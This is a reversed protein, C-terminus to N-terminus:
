ASLRLKEDPPIWKNRRIKDSIKRIVLRDEVELGFGTLFAGYAGLYIVAQPVARWAGQDPLWDSVSWAIGFALAGAVCPKLLAFRFPHIKQILYVEIVRVVSLTGFAVLTGLAAGLMGYQPILVLNLGFNLAVVIGTNVLNLYPHGSMILLTDGSGMSAYLFQSLSLVILCTVGATFESGFLSLLERGFLVMCFLFPLNVTLVWRTVLAFNHGLRSIHNRHNLESIIPAFIPDFWQRVKKTTLAIEIAVAYIGVQMATLFYGVMLADLRMMLIYLFEYGMVPLSFRTLESWLRFQKMGNLCKRWSFFHRFAFVALVSGGIAAVLHAIAIGNFQWGVMFCVAAGGFLFLPEAVSKIYADFKMIKLSKVAGLVIQTFSLFPVTLALVYMMSELEPKDFVRVAIVPALLSLFGAIIASLTLGIAIAHGLTRYVAENHGDSRYEVVFKLVGKDLAFNGVKSVLDIVSWALIYLGFVEAGFLRTLLIFTASKIVKAMTGLFNVLAGKAIVSADHGQPATNVRTETDKEQRTM